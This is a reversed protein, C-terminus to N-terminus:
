REIEHKKLLTYLRTRGLQSIKLAEKIEGKTTVMLQDFYMKELKNVAQERFERYPKLYDSTEFLREQRNSFSTGAAPNEHLQKDIIKIRLEDPLHKPYIVQADDANFVAQELTHILERVNGPWDHFKLLDILEPSFGKQLVNYKNSIEKLFYLVLLELDDLRERLTPACIVSSRLRFFLDERFTGDLVMRELDRNTAAILRFNSRQEDSSGIPRFTKEQIVRLLTKQLALSLEGIEDFFLTSNDAQNILGTVAKNAGTFAGKTHGFLTSEILNEPLAACDIIVIDRDRRSSNEHITHAIVEKGSGTEGVILVNSDNGSAKAIDDILRNIESSNGIIRERALVKTSTRLNLIRERYELVRKIPLLINKPSLPKQLYDWAGNKIAIEAGSSTGAGTIIIVEPAGENNRFDNICDLGSGDPLVVDLFIVDFSDREAANLAQKLSPYSSAEHGINRVITELIDCTYADDDVILVKGM